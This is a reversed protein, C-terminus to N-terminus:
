SGRGVATQNDFLQIPPGPEESEAPGPPKRALTGRWFRRRGRPMAYAIVIVAIGALLAIGAGAIALSRARLWASNDVEAPAPPAPLAAPEADVLISNVAAYPDVIGRGYHSGTAAPTATALLVDDVASGSLGSGPRARVLAATAAVFGCAVRTCIPLAAPLS